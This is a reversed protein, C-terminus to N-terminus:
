VIKLIKNYFEETKKTITSNKLKKVYFGETKKNYFGENQKNDHLGETKSYFGETKYSLTIVANGCEM